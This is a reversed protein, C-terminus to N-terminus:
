APLGTYRNTHRMRPSVLVTAPASSSYSDGAFYMGQRLAYRICSATHAHKSKSPEEAIETVNTNRRRPTPYAWMKLDKITKACNGGVYLKPAPCAGTM